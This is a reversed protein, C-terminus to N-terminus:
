MKKALFYFKSLLGKLVISKALFSAVRRVGFFRQKLFWALIKHRRWRHPHTSIVIAQENKIVKILEGYSVLAIDESERIDNDLIDTIKKFSYGADSIYSFRRNVRARGQVVIDFINPFLKQVDTSRFFDKNSSWGSRKMLPNGHPCVTRVEFGELAFDELTRSFEEIALQMDGLNSDLVDYHYTVEHGLESIKRLLAANKKLLYSQVFYTARIGYEAEIEAIDVARTVDTEVDHKICIWRDAAEKDLIEAVTCCSESPLSACLRAWESLVFNM